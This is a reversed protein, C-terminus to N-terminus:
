PKREMENMHETFLNEDEAHEAVFKQLERTSATIVVDKNKADGLLANSLHFKGQEVSKRFKDDDVWDLRLKKGDTWLRLFWHAQRLRAQPEAGGSFELYSAMGLQLLAPEIAVGTKSHTVHLPYVDSRADWQRPMLDLFKRGGLSVVHGDFAMSSCKGDKSKGSLTVSYGGKMNDEDMPVFEMTSEEDKETSVWSGSLAQDAVVEKSTYLPHLSDVPVCGTLCALLALFVLYRKTM